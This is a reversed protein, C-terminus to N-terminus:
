RSHGLLFDPCPLWKIQLVRDIDEATTIRIATGSAEGMKQLNQSITLGGYLINWDESSPEWLSACLDKNVEVYNEQFANIQNNALEPDTWGIELMAQKTEEDLPPSPLLALQFGLVQGIKTTLFKTVENKTNISIPEGIFNSYDDNRVLYLFGSSIDNFIEFKQDYLKLPTVFREGDKDQFGVFLVIGDTTEVYGLFVGQMNANGYEAMADILGLKPTKQTRYPFFIKWYLDKNDRYPEESNLFLNM